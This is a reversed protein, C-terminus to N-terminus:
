KGAKPRGRPSPRGRPGPFGQWLTPTSPLTERAGPAVWVWLIYSGPAGPGGVNHQQAQVNDNHQTQALQQAWLDLCNQKLFDARFDDIKPTSVAMRRKLVWPVLPPRLGGSAGTPKSSSSPRKSNSFRRNGPRGRSVM